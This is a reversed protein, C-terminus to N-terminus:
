TIKLRPPFQTFEDDSLLTGSRISFKSRSVCTLVSVDVLDSGVEVFVSQQESQYSALFAAEEHALVKGEYSTSLRLV